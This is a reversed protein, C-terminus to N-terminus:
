TVLALEERRFRLSGIAAVAVAWAALVGLAAAPGPGDAVAPLAGLPIGGGLHRLAEGPMGLPLFASAALNGPSIVGILVRAGQELWCWGVRVGCAAVPAQVLLGVGFGLVAAGVMGAVGLTSVWLIDAVSLELAVGQGRAAAYVLVVKAIATALSLTGVVVVIALGKATALRWRRPCVLTSEIISGRRFENATALAGLVCAMMMPLGPGVPASATVDAAALSIARSGTALADLQEKPLQDADTVNPLVENLRILARLLPQALAVLAGALLSTGVALFCLVRASKSYLVRTLESRFISSM